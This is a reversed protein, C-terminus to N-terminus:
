AYVNRPGFKAWHKILTQSHNCRHNQIEFRFKWHQLLVQLSEKLKQLPFCYWSYNWIETQSLFYKEKIQFCNRELEFLFFLHNLYISFYQSYIFRPRKLKVESHWSIKLFCWEPCHTNSKIETIQSISLM